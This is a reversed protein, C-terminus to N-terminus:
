PPLLLSPDTAGECHRRKETFVHEFAVNPFARRRLRKQITLELIVRPEIPPNTWAHKRRPGCIVKPGEYKRRGIEVLKELLEGSYNLAVLGIARIKRPSM